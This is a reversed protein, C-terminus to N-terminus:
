GHVRPMYNIEPVHLTVLAVLPLNERGGPGELSLTPLTSFDGEGWGGWPVGPSLSVFGM